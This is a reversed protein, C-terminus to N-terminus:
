AGIADPPASLEKQIQALPPVVVPEYEVFAV